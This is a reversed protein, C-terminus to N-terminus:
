TAAPKPAAAFMSPSLTTLVPTVTAVVTRMDLLDLAKAVIDPGFAFRLRLLAVIIKEVDTTLAPDFAFLTAADIKPTSRGPPDLVLCFQYIAKLDELKLAATRALIPPEDRGPGVIVNRLVDVAERLVAEGVYLTLLLGLNYSKVEDSLPSSDIAAVAQTIQNAEDSSINQMLALCHLPLQIKAQTFNIGQM